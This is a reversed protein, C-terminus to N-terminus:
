ALHTWYSGIDEPASQIIQAMHDVVADAFVSEYSELSSHDAPSPGTVLRGQFQQGTWRSRAFFVSTKGFYAL